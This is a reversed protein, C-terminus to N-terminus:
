WAVGGVLGQQQQQQLLLAVAVVAFAGLTTGVHAVAGGGAGSYSKCNGCYPNHKPPKRSPAATPARTPAGAPAIVVDACNYYNQDGDWFWQLTAGGASMGAPLTIQRTEKGGSNCCGFLETQFATNSFVGTAADVQPTGTETTLSLRATGGHPADVQWEVTV